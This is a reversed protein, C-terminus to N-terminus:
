SGMKKVTSYSPSEKGLTEKFDENTEKPPMEKKCFYKIVARIEFKEMKCHTVGEERLLARCLCGLMVAHKGSGFDNLYILHGFPLSKLKIFRVSAYRASFTKIM